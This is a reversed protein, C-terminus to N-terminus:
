ELRGVVNEVEELIEGRKVLEKMTNHDNYLPRDVHLHEVYKRIVERACQTGKGPHFERFDLAQAADMAEATSFNQFAAMNYFAALAVVWLWLLLYFWVGLARVLYREPASHHGERPSVHPDNGAVIRRFRRERWRRVPM